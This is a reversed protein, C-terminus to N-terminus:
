IRPILLMKWSRMVIHHRENAVMTHLSSLGYQGRVEAGALIFLRSFYMIHKFSLYLILACIAYLSLSLTLPFYPLFPGFLITEIGRSHGHLRVFCFLFCFFGVRVHCRGWERERAISTSLDWQVCMSSHRRATHVRIFHTGIAISWRLVHRIRELKSRAMTFEVIKHKKEGSKECDRENEERSSQQENDLHFYSEFAFSHHPHIAPPHYCCWCINSNECNKWSQYKRSHTAYTRKQMTEMEVCRVRVWGYASWCPNMTITM